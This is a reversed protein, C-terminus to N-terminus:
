LDGKEENLHMLENQEYQLQKYDSISLDLFNDMNQTDEPLSEFVLYFEWDKGNTKEIVSELNSINKENQPLLEFIKLNSYSTAQLIKLSAFTREHDPFLCFIKVQKWSLNHPLLELSSLTRESQTLCSFMDVFEYEIDKSKIIDAIEFIDKESEQFFRLLASQENSLYFGKTLSLYLEDFEQETLKLKNIGLSQKIHEINSSSTVLTIGLADVFSLKVASETVSHANAIDFIKKHLDSGFNYLMNHVCFAQYEIAHDKAYLYVEENWSNLFWSAGFPNQVFMPQLLGLESFQKLNEIGIDTVGISRVKGELYLDTLNKWLEIQIPKTEGVYIYFADLYNTKLDKLLRDICERLSIIEGKETYCSSISQLYLDSRKM